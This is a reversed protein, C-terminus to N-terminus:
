HPPLIGLHPAFNFYFLIRNNHPVFLDCFLETAHIVDYSLHITVDRIFVYLINIVFIVHSRKTQIM